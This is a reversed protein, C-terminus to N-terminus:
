SGSLMPYDNEPFQWADRNGLFINNRVWAGDTLKKADTAAGVKNPNSHTADITVSINSAYHCNALQADAKGAVPGAYATEKGAHGHPASAHVNGTAFCNEAKEQLMGVVGGVYAQNQGEGSVNGTAYCNELTIAGGAVGGAAAYYSGGTHGTAASVAARGYCDTVAAGSGVVGGAFAYGLGYASVTSNEGACCCIVADASGAIGGACTRDQGHASVSGTAKCGTLTSENGHQGVIGGACITQRADTVTIDGQFFCDTISGGNNWGVIGGIYVFDDAEMRLKGAASCNSVTGQNWAVVAGVYMGRVSTCDLTFNELHLDKVTGTSCGIFGACNDYHEALLTFNSVTHGGGDLVGSFPAGSGGVAKWKAGGLDIDKTLIYKGEPQMQLLAQASDIFYVWRAEIQVKGYDVNPYQEIREGEYYWGDFQRNEMQPPEPLVAEEDYYVEVTCYSQGDVLFTANYRWIKEKTWSAEVTIDQTMPQNSDWSEGNLLWGAFEYGTKNPIWATDPLQGERAYTVTMVEGDVLFTVSYLRPETPAQTTTPPTTEPLEPEDGCACLLVLLCSLLALLCIIKKGM